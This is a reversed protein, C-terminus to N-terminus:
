RALVSGVGAMLEKTNVYNQMALTNREHRLDHFHLGTSQHCRGRGEV